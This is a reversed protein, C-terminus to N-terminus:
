VSEEAVLDGAEGGVLDSRVDEILRVVEGVKGGGGRGPGDTFELGDGFAQAARREHEFLL